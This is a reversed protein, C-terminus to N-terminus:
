KKLYRRDTTAYEDTIDKDFIINHRDKSYKSPFQINKIIRYVSSVSCNFIKAVNKYTKVEKYTNIMADREKRLYKVGDKTFTRLTNERSTILRLNNINNNRPNEDIHDIQLGEPIDGIFNEWILRHLYFLKGVQYPNGFKDFKTKSFTDESFLRVQLYKKKSQSAKQPKLQLPKKRKTSFVNGHSSIIYDDFHKIRLSIEKENKM